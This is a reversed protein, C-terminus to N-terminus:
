LRGSKPKRRPVPPTASAQAISLADLVSKVAPSLKAVEALAAPASELIRFLASPGDAIAKGVISADIPFVGREAGDGDQIVLEFFDPQSTSPSPDAALRRLYLKGWACQAQEVISVQQRRKIDAKAADSASKYYPAPDIPAAPAANAPTTSM